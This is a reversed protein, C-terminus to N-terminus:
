NKISPSLGISSYFDNKANKELLSAVIYLVASTLTIKNNFTGSMAMFKGPDLGEFVLHHFFYFFLLHKAYRNTTFLTALRSILTAGLSRRCIIM